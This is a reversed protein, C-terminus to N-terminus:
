RRRVDPQERRRRAEPPQRHERRLRDESAGQRHQRVLESPIPASACRRNELISRAISANLADDAATHTSAAGSM